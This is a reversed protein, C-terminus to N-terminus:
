LGDYDESVDLVEREREEARRKAHEALSRYYGKLTSERDKPVPAPATRPGLAHQTHELKNIHEELESNDAPFAVCVWRIKRGKEERDLNVSRLMLEMQKWNGM